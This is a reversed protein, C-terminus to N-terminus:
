SGPPHEWRGGRMWLVSVVTNHLHQEACTRGLIHWIFVPLSWEEHCRPYAHAMGPHSVPRFTSLLSSPYHVVHSAMLPHATRIHHPYGCLHLPSDKTGTAMLHHRALQLSHPSCRMLGVVRQHHTWSCGVNWGPGFSIGDTLQSSERPCACFPLPSTSFNRESSPPVGDQVHLTRNQSESVASLM